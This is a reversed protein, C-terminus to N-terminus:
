VDIGNGESSRRPKLSGSMLLTAIGSGSL